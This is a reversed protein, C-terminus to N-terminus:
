QRAEPEREVERSRWLPESRDRAFLRHRRAASDKLAARLLDSYTAAVARATKLMEAQRAPDSGTADISAALRRLADRADLACQMLRIIAPAITKM